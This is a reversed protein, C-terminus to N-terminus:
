IHLHDVRIIIIFYRMLLVNMEHIADYETFLFDFYITVIFTYM